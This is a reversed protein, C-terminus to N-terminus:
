TDRKWEGGGSWEGARERKGEGETKEQKLQFSHMNTSGVLELSFRLNLLLTYRAQEITM